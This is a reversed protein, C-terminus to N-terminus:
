RGPSVKQWYKEIRNLMSRNSIYSETYGCDLCVYNDLEISTKSDIPLRNSGRLGEKGDIIAGSKINQSGCRECVGDTKLSPQRDNATM